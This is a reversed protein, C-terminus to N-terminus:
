AGDRAHENLELDVFRSIMARYTEEVVEPSAGREGALKRVKRIVEEARKPAEVDDRTKKFRAARRVYVEREALLRVIKEDVADISGRVEDLGGARGPDEVEALIKETHEGVSPIPDMVPEVGELTAPPLLARL